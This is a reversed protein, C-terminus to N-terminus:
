LRILLDKEGINQIQVEEVNKSLIKRVQSIEVEKDIRVEMLIGGAFDIGFNLGKTFILGLSALMFFISMVLAMKHFRVFDIKRNSLISRFNM